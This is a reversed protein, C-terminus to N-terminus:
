KDMLLKHEMFSFYSNNSFIVHDLVEVGLISGADILINTVKIDDDSPECNGSPHNHCVIIAAAKEMLADAFVERPHVLTRNVTGITVVRIKIIENGGNLSVCIFHERNEISYSQVFPIVDSPKQIKASKFSNRRRGLEIAAAVSLSKGKGMGNIQLLKEILNEPESHQLIENVKRSLKEVDMGKTGSGIILMLLEIDTPYSIGHLMTQERIDPKFFNTKNMM